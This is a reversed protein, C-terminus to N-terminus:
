INVGFHDSATAALHPLLSVLLAWSFVARPVRKQRWSPWLWSLACLLAPIPVFLLVTGLVWGPAEFWSGSWTTPPILSLLLHGAIAIRLALEARPYPRSTRIGSETEQAM